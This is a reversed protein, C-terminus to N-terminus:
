QLFRIKFEKIVSFSGFVLYKERASIKFDDPMISVEVPLDKLKKVLNSAKCIRKDEVDILVIKKIKKALIQIIKFYDKDASSNYILTTNDPIHPLIREASLPNHGVDLIINKKIRQFRAQFNINEGLNKLSNSNIHFGLNKFATAALKMNDVLFDPIQNKVEFQQIFLLEKKTLAPSKKNYKERYKAIIKEADPYPQASSVLKNKVSRLKTQTIEQITEGLFNIHDIGIPTVISLHKKLVNTADYEGGLGAELIMFECNQFIKFALLTTYEFRSIKKIDENPIIKQIFNHAEQLISKDVTKGNITYMDIFSFLEPSNYSGVSINNNLLCNHLTASTSGKGNTGIIHIIKATINFNNKIRSWLDPFYEYDIDEYYLPKDELFIHLPKIIRGM